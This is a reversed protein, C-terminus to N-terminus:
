WRPRAQANGDFGDAVISASTGASTGARARARPLVCVARDLFRLQFCRHEAGFRGPLRERGVKLELLHPERRRVHAPCESVVVPRHLRVTGHVPNEAVRCAIVLVVILAVSGVAAAGGKGQRM